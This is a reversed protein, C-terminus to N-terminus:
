YKTLPLRNCQCLPDAMWSWQCTHVIKLNQGLVTHCHKHIGDQVVLHREDEDGDEDEDQVVLHREDEDERSSDREGVCIYQQFTLDQCRKIIELTPFADLLLHNWCFFFTVKSAFIAFSPFATAFIFLQYHQSITKFISLCCYPGTIDYRSFYKWTICLVCM